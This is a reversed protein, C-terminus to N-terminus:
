LKIFNFYLAYYIKNDYLIPLSFAYITTDLAKTKSENDEKYLCTESLWSENLVYFNLYLEYVSDYVFGLLKCISDNHLVIEDYFEFFCGTHITHELHSFKSLRIIFLHHKIFVM